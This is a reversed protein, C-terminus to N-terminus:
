QRLPAREGAGLAREAASVIDAVGMGYRDLLQEHPGTEGYTDRVGVPVVPVPLHEGLLEAVASGLGGIVSHEECTVVAGTRGAEELILDRDLPKLTHVEVVSASVGRRELLEAAQLVREGLTGAFLLSVDTGPRLVIGAGLRFPQEPPHIDPVVARSLRFYVPGDHDAIAPLLARVMRHDSAVAVTMGPLARVVALDAISQHTAGDMPGSFGGYGAMLKVNTRAYSVLTRLSDGARLTLLWAFTNAFPILGALSLGAAVGVLNQEAVGVDYFRESFRQRFWCTMTGTSMDADVVVVRPNAQGLAVLAEGYTDRLIRRGTQGTM